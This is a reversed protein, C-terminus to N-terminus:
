QHASWDKLYNIVSFIDMQNKGNEANKHCQM